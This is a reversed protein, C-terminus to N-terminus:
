LSMLIDMIKQVCYYARCEKRFFLSEAKYVEDVVAASRSCLSLLIWVQIIQMEELQIPVSAELWLCYSLLCVLLLKRKKKTLFLIKGRFCM